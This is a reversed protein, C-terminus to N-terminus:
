HGEKPVAEYNRVFTEPDIPYICGTPAKVVWDGVNAPVERGGPAPSQVLYPPGTLPTSLADYAWEPLKATGRLYDEIAVLRFAEVVIPRKVFKGM